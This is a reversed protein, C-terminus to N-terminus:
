FFLQRINYWKGGTLSLDKKEGGRKWLWVGYGAMLLFGAATLLMGERLYPYTFSIATTGSDAMLLHNEERIERSSEFSDLYALATNVNDHETKISIGSTDYGIDVPVTQREPLEGAKMGFYDDLFAGAEQDATSIGYYALNFGLLHINETETEGAFCLEQGNYSATGSEKFVNVLYVTTWQSHEEPFRGTQFQVGGYSLEPYYNELTVSATEVGLFKSLGARKSPINGMDVYIECGAEALRKLLVQAEEKNDYTFGSLYIKEYCVLEEFTYRNLNGEQTEQFVPYRLAISQASDGIAIGSYDTVTGFGGETDLHFIVNIGNDTVYQYGRGKGAEKLRDLDERGNKMASMLVYVTDNGLELCRDFLYDYYGMSVATNLMVVNSATHAGQWAAGFTCLVKPEEGSLYYPAFATYASLDMVAIRQKTVAKAEDLLLREADEKIEAQADPVWEEQEAWVFGLSPVTDLLLLVCLGITIWSKLRKWQLFSILVFVMAVSVFREMWLISSFPLKMLLQYATLTTGLFIMIGTLFGARQERFGLFFGMVALVLVSLGFYLFDPNELRLLPQISIWASQFSNVMVQASDSGMSVLGGKLSPYLWWGTMAYGSVLALVVQAANRKQHQFIGYLVLFVLLCLLVISAQGSHAQVLLAMFVCIWVFAGAQRRRIKCDKPEEMRKKGYELFTVVGFMLWPLLAAVLGRPMNGSAFFVRLNEPLFFWLGGTFVALGIRRYHWGFCLWGGMSLVILVGIFLLYADLISSCLYRLVALLYVAGPAWYRLPQVGNYLYRDYLPYWEQNKLSEFLSEGRFIHYMTDYGRPYLGTKKIVIMTVAALLISIFIGNLIGLLRIWIERKQERPM